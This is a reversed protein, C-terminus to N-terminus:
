DEELLLLQLLKVPLDVFHTSKVHLREDLIASGVDRSLRGRLLGLLVRIGGLSTRLGCSTTILLVCIPRVLQRLSTPLWLRAGLRVPFQHLESVLNLRLHLPEGGKSLPVM